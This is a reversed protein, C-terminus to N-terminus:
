SEVALVVTRGPKVHVTGALRGRAPAFAVDAQPRLQRVTLKAARGSLGLAALDISVRARAARRAPNHLTFFLRGPRDGFREIWLGNASAHPVFRYGAEAVRRMVPMLEHLEARRDRRTGPAMGFALLKDAQALWPARGAPLWGGGFFIPKGGLMLRHSSLRELDYNWPHRERFYVDIFRGCYLMSHDLNVNAMVLGGKAHVRRSLDRAFQWDGFGKVQCLRGTTPDFTPAFDMAAIHDRRFNLRRFGGWDDLADWAFNRPGRFGREDWRRIYRFQWDMALTYRNPAPLNPDMNGPMLWCHYHPPAYFTRQLKGREDELCSNVGARAVERHSAGCMQNNAAYCGPLRGAAQARLRALQEDPTDTAEGEHFWYWPGRWHFVDVGWKRALDASGRSMQGDYAQYDNEAYVWGFDEVNEPVVVGAREPNPMVTSNGHRTAATRTIAPFFRHFREAASRIGWAGDVPYIVFRFDARSPGRSRIPTLGVAFTVSLGNDGAGFRFVRPEDLPDAIALGGAGRTVCAFPLRSMPICYPRHDENAFRDGKVGLYLYDDRRNPLRAGRAIRASRVATNQWTWGVLGAPLTFTVYLGRDVGSADSVCGRVDIFRGGKIDAQISLASHMANGNFRLSRGHRRCRGVVQGWDRRRGRPQLVEVISFGGPGASPLKRRGLRVAEVIGDDGISLELGGECGVKRTM